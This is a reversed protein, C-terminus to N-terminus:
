KYNYDQSKNEFINNNISNSLYSNNNDNSYSYKYNNNTNNIDDISNKLFRKRGRNNVGGTSGVFNYFNFRINKDANILNEANNILFENKNNQVNINNVNKNIINNNNHKNSQNYITNNMYNINSNINNTNKNNINQNNNNYNNFEAGYIVSSKSIPIELYNTINNNNFQNYKSINNNNKYYYSTNRTVKKIENQNNFNSKIFNLTKRKSNYDNIYHNNIPISKQRLNDINFQNNFQNNNDSINFNINNCKQLRNLNNVYKENQKCVNIKYKKEGYIYNNIKENKDSLYYLGVINYKSKIEFFDYYKNNNSNNNQNGSFDRTFSIYFENGEDDDMQCLVSNLYYNIEDPHNKDLLIEVYMKDLVLIEPFDICKNIEIKQDANIRKREFFMILNKPLNFFRINETHTTKLKCFNCITKRNYDTELANFINKYNLDINKEKMNEMNFCLFHFYNFIYDEIHCRKCVKKLELIGFFSESFWSKIKKKYKKTYNKYKEEKLIQAKIYNIKENNPLVINLEENLKDFIYKVFSIPDIEQCKDNDKFLMQLNKLKFEKISEEFFNKNLKFFLQFFYNSIGKKINYNMNRLHEGWIPSSFLFHICSFISSYKLYKNLYYIKYLEYIENSTPRLNKNQNVMKDILEILENSYHSNNDIDDHMHCIEYFIKGISFVDINADYNCKGIEPASFYNEITTGKNIINLIENKNNTYDRAAAKDMIASANFDILKINMKEDILINLLKIDRHIIGKGHIYVLAELCQGLLDWILKEEIKREQIKYSYYLDSFTNGNIYEIIIYYNEDDEFSTYYKVIYPHNLNKLILIERKRYQENGKEGIKNMIKMAFIKNNIKSKVKLIKGYGGDGVIEIPIFDQKRNGINEKINQENLKDPLNLKVKSNEFNIKLLSM